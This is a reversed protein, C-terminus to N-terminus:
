RKYNSVHNKGVGGPRESIASGWIDVNHFVAKTNWMNEKILSCHLNSTQPLESDRVNEHFIIQFSSLGVQSHEIILPINWIIASKEFIADEANLRLFKMHCSQTTRRLIESRTISRPQRQSHICLCRDGLYVILINLLCSNM